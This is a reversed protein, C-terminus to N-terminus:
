LKHRQENRFIHHCDVCDATVRAYANLVAPTNTARAADIMAMVDARYQVTKKLYDADPIKVWVNSQTMQTLHVSNSSILRYNELTIGEVIKESYGLKQSMFAEMTTKKKHSVDQAYLGGAVLTTLVAMGIWNTKM